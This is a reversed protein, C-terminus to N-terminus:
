SIKGNKVFNLLIKDAEEESDSDDMLCKLHLAMELARIRFAMEKIVEAVPASLDFDRGPTDSM